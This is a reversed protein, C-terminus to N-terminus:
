TAGGERVALGFHRSLLSKLAAAVIPAGHLTDYTARAKRALLRLQAPDALILEIAQVWAETTDALIINEGSLIGAVGRSALTTSLVPLGFAFSEVVRTRLGTAETSAVVQLDSSAYLPTLDAVRGLLSVQAYKAALERIRVCRNSAGSAEGVVQLSIRQLVEQPLRPLVEGLLFELSRFSPLHAIAGLHLLNLRGDGLWSRAELLQPVDSISMPLHEVNPAGWETRIFDRDDPTICVILRSARAIRREFRKVFQYERRQPASIPTSGLEQDIRNSAAIVSSPLDHTSWIANLGPLFALASDAATAFQHLSGPYQRGRVRAAEYVASHREFYYKGAAHGPYGQRFQLRGLLSPHLSAEVCTWTVPLEPAKESRCGGPVAQVVEVQFGLDLYARCDSYMRLHTGSGTKRPSINTYLFVRRAESRPKESGM